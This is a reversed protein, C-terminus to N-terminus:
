LTWVINKNHMVPAQSWLDQRNCSALSKNEFDTSYSCFSQLYWDLKLIDICLNYYWSKCLTSIQLGLINSLTSLRDFLICIYLQVYFAHISMLWVPHHENVEGPDGLQYIIDWYKVRPKKKGFSKNKGDCSEAIHEM